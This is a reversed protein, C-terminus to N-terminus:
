ETAGERYPNRGMVSTSPHTQARCIAGEDWSAAKAARVRAKTVARVAACTDALGDCIYVDAWHNEPAYPSCDCLDPHHDGATVILDKEAVTLEASM